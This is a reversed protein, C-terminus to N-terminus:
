LVTCWKWGDNSQLLLLQCTTCLILLLYISWIYGSENNHFLHLVRESIVPDFYAGQQYCGESCEFGCYCSHVSLLTTTVESHPKLVNKPVELRQLPFLIVLAMTTAANVRVRYLNIRVTKKPTFDVLITTM